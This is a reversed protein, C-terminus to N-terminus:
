LLGNLDDFLREFRDLVPGTAEGLVTPHDILYRAASFRDDEPVAGSASLSDSLRLLEGYADAGLLGELGAHESGDAAYSALTLTNSRQLWESHDIANASERGGGNGVLIAMQLDDRGFLALFSPIRSLGGCPTGTWRPDLGKRGEARLRDSAWQLFLLDSPGEVMLPHEGIFLSRTVDYGLAAQLPFLTDRDASFMRGGVKTGLVTGEPSTADEVTRCSSVDRPDIMFPSHTTYVVQYKALLEARIYALLDAQARAHLTLGPEDLLVVLNEGFERQVESFWVLFSFFWIFGTSREDLGITAEHRTNEIRTQFIKGTNFPPADEPSAQDFRFRVKLHQNQSWYRFIKKSLRNEVAELKSILGESTGIEAIQAPSTGVMSLLALFVRSGPVREFDHESQAAILEDLAMRGPLRDYHSYYVFRPLRETLYASVAHQLGGDSWKERLSTHFAAQGPTPHPLDGLAKLLASTTRAGRLPALEADSLESAALAQNVAGNFDLAISWALTNDYDKSVAVYGPELEVGEGALGRIHDREEHSLEWESFVAVDVDSSEEYESWNMRPYETERFTGREPRVSNLRELAELLATKGSENKGVLCTLDGVTFWESDLVSKFNTVRVRKLKM